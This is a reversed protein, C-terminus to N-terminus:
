SQSVSICCAKKDDAKGDTGYCLLDTRVRKFNDAKCDVSVKSADICNGGQQECNGSQTTFIKLRGVFILSLVVLVLLSIIAIIVVNISLDAKKKM